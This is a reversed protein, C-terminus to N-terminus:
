RLNISNDEDENSTFYVWRIEGNKMEFFVSEGCCYGRRALGSIVGPPFAGIIKGCNPCHCIGIGYLGTEVKSLKRIEANSVNRDQIASSIIDSILRQEWTDRHM